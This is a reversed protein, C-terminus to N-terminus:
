LNSKDRNFEGFYKKEADERVKCAEEYTDYYGLNMRENNVCIYVKWKNVNNYYYWFVGKHGSKNHKHMKNNKSNDRITCIRLNEKRNDMSDGNIHDIIMRNPSDMLLRHLLKRDHNMVYFNYYTKSGKSKNIMWKQSSIFGYDELDFLVKFDGHKSGSILLEGYYDQLIYQNSIISNGM